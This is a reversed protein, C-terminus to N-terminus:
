DRVVKYVGGPMSRSSRRGKTMQDFREQTIERPPSGTLLAETTSEGLAERILIEAAKRLEADRREHGDSDSKAVEVIYRYPERIASYVTPPLTGRYHDQLHFPIAITFTRSQKFESLRKVCCSGLYQSYNPM